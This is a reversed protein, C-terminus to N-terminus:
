TLSRSRKVVPELGLEDDGRGAEVCADEVRQRPLHNGASAELLESTAHQLRGGVHPLAPDPENLLASVAWM